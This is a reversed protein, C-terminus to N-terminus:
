FNSGAYGWHPVEEYQVYIRNAPVGLEDKIIDTVAATMQDYARESARGFLRIEVFAAPKDGDGAFYLRCNDEMNVMLYSEPKSLLGVAKGLKTKINKEQAKSIEVNTKTNIYPM